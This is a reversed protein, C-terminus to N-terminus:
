ADNVAGQRIARHLWARAVSFDRKVTKPSINLVEAIGEVSLGGFYHVEVVQAQRPHEQQLLDLARDLDILDAAKQNSAVVVEEICM